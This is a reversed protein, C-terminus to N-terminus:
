KIQKNLDGLKISPDKEITNNVVNIIVFTGFPSM